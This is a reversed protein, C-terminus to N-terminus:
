PAGGSSHASVVPMSANLQGLRKLYNAQEHKVERLHIIQALHFDELADIQAGSLSSLGKGLANEVALDLASSLACAKEFQHKLMHIDAVPRKAPQVSSRKPTTATQELVTSNRAVTAWSRGSITPAPPMSKKVEPVAPKEEAVVAPRVNNKAEAQETAQSSPTALAKAEENNQPPQESTRKKKAKKKKKKKKRKKGETASQSTSDASCLEMALADSAEELSSWASEIMRLLKLAHERSKAPAVKLTESALDLAHKGDRNKLCIDAGASLLLMSCMSSHTEIVAHLPTNGNQSSQFNVDEKTAHKLLHLMCQYKLSDPAESAALVVLPTVGSQNPQHILNPVGAFNLLYNVAKHDALVCAFALSSDGNVNKITALSNDEKLLLKVVSLASSNEAEVSDYPTSVLAYHLVTNGASGSLVNPKAGANLFTKVMEVRNKKAGCALFLPTCSQDDREHVNLKGNRLAENVASVDGSQIVAKM